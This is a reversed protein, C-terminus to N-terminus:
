VIRAATGDQYACAECLTRGQHVEYAVRAKTIAQSCADCHTTAITWQWLEDLQQIADM